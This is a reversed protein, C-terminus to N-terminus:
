STLLLRSNKLFHEDPYFIFICSGDAITKILEKYITMPVSPCGFSRGLRGYKKIFSESVYDAGHMVIARKKANDNFGKDMGHLFMSLGHKGYYSSGSIYFGLSSMNTEPVNSFKGAYENGSNRGHAVLDNFLVTKNEIDIVWMRKENSSLSFDIVTLIDRKLEETAKLNEFGKLAFSFVEYSPLTSNNTILANYLNLTKQEYHNEPVKGSEPEHANVHMFVLLLAYILIKKRLLVKNMNEESPNEDNGATFNFQLINLDM